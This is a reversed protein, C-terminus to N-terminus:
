RLPRVAYRYLLSPNPFDHRAKDLKRRCTVYVPSAPFCASSAVLSTTRGLSFPLHFPTSFPLFCLYLILRCSKALASRLRRAPALAEVEQLCPALAITATIVAPQNSPQGDKNKSQSPRTLPRPSSKTWVACKRAAANPTHQEWGSPSM